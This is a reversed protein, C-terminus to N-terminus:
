RNLIQRIALAPDFGEFIQSDTLSKMAGCTMEDKVTWTVLPQAERAAQLSANSADSVHCALYDVDVAPTAALNTEGTHQSPLILQGKMIDNPVAGVASTSFSMMACPGGHKQLRRAVAKALAVPDTAGDVKLECLLPTTAPWVDLLTDLTVIEGGGMLPTGVLEDSSHDEISGSAETMRDLTPDHFIIPIGDRTPRIDFEIGLGQEAAALFAAISNEPPGNPQWLGRHAYAFDSVAFREPLRLSVTM